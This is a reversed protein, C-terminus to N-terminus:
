LNFNSGNVETNLNLCHGSIALAEDILIRVLWSSFAGDYKFRLPNRSATRWCNAVAEDACKPGGLVRTAVFRLLRRYRSFRADFAAADDTQTTRHNRKPMETTLEGGKHESEM